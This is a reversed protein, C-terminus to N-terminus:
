NKVELLEINAANHWKYVDKLKKVAYSYADRKGEFYVHNVNRDNACESYEMVKLELDNLVEKISEEFTM